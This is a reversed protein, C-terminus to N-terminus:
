QLTFARFVWTLGATFGWTPDQDTIGLLLAGDVRVPGRTFRSGVRVVSRTEAGIPNEEESLNFRGNVEGVIEVGQAVARAVSFGYTFLHNNQAAELPDSFVGFGANAAIRVSQVTKAVGIGYLFDMTGPGLGSEASATPLRTSFRVAMAPRSATESLFRVKAGVMLDGFTTTSDGVAFADAFPSIVPVSTLTLNDRFSGDLQIEAISGVGISLGFTGIRWLTGEIGAAPFKVDRAYDLGAEFLMFGAPVTEPDETVLPRSQAGAPVSWFVLTAGLAGL